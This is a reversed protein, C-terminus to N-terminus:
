GGGCWSNWPLHTVRGLDGRHAASVSQALSLGESWTVAETLGAFWSARPESFVEGELQEWDSGMLSAARPRAGREWQRTRSFSCVCVCVPAPSCSGLPGAPTAAGFPLKEPLLM